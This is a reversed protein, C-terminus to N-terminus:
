TGWSVTHSGGKASSTSDFAQILCDGTHAATFEQQEKRAAGFCSRIAWRPLSQVQRLPIHLPSCGTSCTAESPRAMREPRGCGSTTPGTRGGLSGSGSRARIEDLWRGEERLSGAAHGGAELTTATRPNGGHSDHGPQSRCNVHTTEGEWQDPYPPLPRRPPM